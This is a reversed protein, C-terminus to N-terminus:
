KEAKSEEEETRPFLRILIRIIWGLTYLFLLTMGMGFGAAFLGFGMNSM